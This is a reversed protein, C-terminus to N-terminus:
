HGRRRRRRGALLGVAALGAFAATTPEPVLAINYLAVDNGGTLAGTEFNATYTIQGTGGDGFLVPNGEPLGAFTGSVPDTGAQVLIFAAKTPDVGSPDSTTYGNFGVVSLTGTGLTLTGPGSATTVTQDYFGSGNGPAAGGIEVAYRSGSTLTIAGGTTLVGPSNGPALVAGGNITLAGAISGAAPSSGGVTGGNATVGGALTGNVLLTGASVATLGTYGNTGTITLVGSGTKTLGGGAGNIAALNSLTGAQFVGAVLNTASGITKGTMNLTGGNLTLTATTGTASGVVINGAVTLTGGTLNLSATSPGNTANASSGLTISTGSTAGVTVAATGGINLTGVTPNGAITSTNPAIMVGGIGITTTGGNLTVTGTSTGTATGTTAAKYGISVGTVDLTGTDFSFTGTSNAGGGTATRGGVQLNSLMLDASHGTLTVVGTPTSGTTTAGYAVALAARGTGARDRVMLTGAATQFDLTGNARNVAAGIEITNVQLTNSVTGLKIAEAFSSDPSDTTLTAALITSSPALLLTSGATGGGNSNSAEGVRFTGTGLNAYFTGVGSLDLTAGNSVNTTANVGLQVNANTPTTPTGISFTAAPGVVNLRTTTTGTGGVGVTVAGTATLTSGAGVTIINATASNTPATITTVTQNATGLDLNAPVGSTTGVVLAGTGLPNTGGATVSLTGNLVTTTGTGFSNPGPVVLTGTGLKTLNLAAVAPTPTLAPATFTGGGANTTDFGIGSGSAFTGNGLLTTVDAATFEGAGGVNLALTGGSLASVQGATLYNPLSVTKAAQLIGASVVTSAGTAAAYTNTGSLVTTGAGTKTLNFAGSVNGAVTETFGSGAGLFSNATLSVAQAFSGSAANTTAGLGASLTGGNLTIGLPVNAATVTNSADLTGGANVTISRGPATGLVANAGLRLVGSNVAVNGSFNFPQNNLYVTGTGTGTVTLDGTGGFQGADDLQFLINTTGVDFTAGGTGVVFRKANTATPNSNTTLARLVANNTVTITKTGAGLALPDGNGGNGGVFALVGATVNIDGTFTNALGSLTLTGAGAKTLTLGPGTDFVLGSVTLGGGSAVTWTQAAGIGLRSSITHTATSLQSIGNGAANGNATGADITLASTTPTGSAIIVPATATSLFTLSNIEFDANLVTSLNAAAPTTTYFSVNSGLGPIAGTGTAGAVDTNWNGAATWATSTAGSWVAAAPGAGAQTGITVSAITGTTATNLQFTRGGSRTTALSFGTPVSTAASTILPYTADPIPTGALQNFSILVTNATAASVAGTAAILDTAAAGLDFYLNNQATTTGSLTLTSGLSLTGVAGDRLDIGGNTNVTVAGGVTGTGGLFGGNVAVAGVAASSNGTIRLLGNSITTPGTYTNAGALTWTGSGTKTVNTLNTTSNNAIAGGVVGVGATSGQLALTKTGGGTATVAGVQFTGTGSQDLTATATNSALNIVRDSTSGTGVYTLGGALSTTTGSGLNITGTAVTTPKGLSSAAGGVPTLSNIVLTGQNIATAGTYTSLGSLTWTGSGAKIVGTTPTSSDPIVGALEGTGGTSGQLTLTKAGAGTATLNSTFKLLGSAGSQTIIGGATTGNLNIVRDTTEGTGVYTLSGALTTTGFQITGNAVTTPAGLSSAATGGVVSNLSSVVLSGTTTSQLSTAGTFTNLGSLTVTGTNTAFLAMPGSIVSTGAQTIATTGAFVIGNGSTAGGYAINGNVALTGSTSSIRANGSTLSAITINGSYTNAGNVNALSNAYNTGSATSSTGSITLPEAVNVGGSLQLQGGVSVTTGAATSGLASANAGQLFFGPAITTTGTYDNAGGLVVGGTGNSPTALSNGGAFVNTGGVQVTAAGTLVPNPITLVGFGGGLRYTGGSAALSTATYSGNGGSGLYWLGNSGGTPSTSTGYLTGLDLPVNFGTTNIQFVGGNAGTSNTTLAPLSAQDAPVYGVGIGGLATSASTVTLSGTGRSNATGFSAAFGAPVSINASYNSNDGNLFLTQGVGNGVTNSNAGLFTIVGAGASGSTIGGSVFLNRPFSQYFDGLRVNFAGNATVAGSFTSPAAVTGNDGGINGGANIILPNAITAAAATLEAGANVTITNGATLGNGFGNASIENQGGNLIVAGTFGTNAVSIQLGNFTGILVNNASATRTLTGSGILGGTTNILTKTASTLDITGGGAGVTVVQTAGFTFVASTRLTGGNLLVGGTPLNGPAGVSLVGGTIATGGTATQTGSLVLTGAGAKTFLNAGTIVGGYTLTTAAATALTGGGAGLSIGRTTSLAFNNTTALLTGGGSLLLSNTATGLNNDASISVTGGAITTAGTFTNAGGLVLTGAGTKQLTTGAIVANITATDAPNTVAITPTTGGLTLTFGGGAITYGDVGFTLANANIGTGLTVTNTANGGTNNFTATDTPQNGYVVNNVGLDTTWNPLTTDWTGSGGTITTDNPTTGVDWVYDVARAPSAVLAAAAAAALVTRWQGRGSRTTSKESTKTVAM